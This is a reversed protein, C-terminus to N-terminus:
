RSYAQYVTQNTSSRAKNARLDMLLGQRYRQQSCNGDQKALQSRAFFPGPWHSARTPTPLLSSERCNALRAAALVVLCNMRGEVAGAELEQQTGQCGPELLVMEKSKRWEGLLALPQHRPQRVMGQQSQLEGPGKTIPEGHKIAEISSSLKLENMKRIPSQSYSNTGM